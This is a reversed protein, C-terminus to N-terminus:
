LYLKCQFGPVQLITSTSWGNTRNALTLNKKVIKTNVLMKDLSFIIYPEMKQVCYIYPEMTRDRTSTSQVLGFVLYNSTSYSHIM